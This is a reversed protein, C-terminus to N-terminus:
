KCKYSEEKEENIGLLIKFQLTDKYQYKGVSLSIFISIHMAWSFPHWNYALFSIYFLSYQKQMFGIKRIESEKM